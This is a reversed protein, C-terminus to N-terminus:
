RNAGVSSIFAEILEQQTQETLTAQVVEPVALSALLANEARLEEAGRGSLLVFKSSDLVKRAATIPNKITKVGAVAGARLTKGNMISADMEHTRESTFVSGKGANFLPCDELITVAGQVADLASSGDNLLAYGANLAAQLASRYAEEKEPTM